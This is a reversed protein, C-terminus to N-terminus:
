RPLHKQFAQDIFIQVISNDPDLVQELWHRQGTKQYAPNYVGLYAAYDFYGRPRNEDPRVAKFTISVGEPSTESPPATGTSSIYSPGRVLVGDAFAWAQTQLLGSDVPANKKALESCERAVHVTADKKGRQFFAELDDGLLGIDRM